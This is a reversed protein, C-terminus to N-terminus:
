QEEEKYLAKSCYDEASMEMNWYECRSDDGRDHKWPRFYICEKCRVINAQDRLMSAAAHCLNEIEETPKGLTKGNINWSYAVDEIYELGRIVNDLDPM